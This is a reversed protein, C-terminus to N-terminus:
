PRISTTVPVKPFARPPAEPPNMAPRVGSISNRLCFDRGYVKELVIGGATTAAELLRETGEVNVKYYLSKPRVDDRYLAALHVLVDVGNMADRCDNPECIDGVRSLAPHAPNAVRDLIRVEHGEGVLADVVHRGLFGSGGTVLVKRKMAEKVLGPRAPADLQLTHVAGPLSYDGKGRRDSSPADHM